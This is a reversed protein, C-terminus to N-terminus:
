LRTGSDETQYDSLNWKTFITYEMPESKILELKACRNNVQGLGFLM